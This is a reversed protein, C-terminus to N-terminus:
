DIVFVKCFLEKIVFNEVTNVLPLIQRNTTGILDITDSEINVKCRTVWNSSAFASFLRQFVNFFVQCVRLKDDHRVLLSEVICDVRLVGDNAFSNDPVLM